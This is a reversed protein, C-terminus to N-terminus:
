RPDAFRWSATFDRPPAVGLLRARLMEIPMRGGQLISDHFERDTMRGSTVLEEHLARIQMGGLMYAAQYLPPYSGNFSRRVEATANAREHGVREVLFDIAEDPTMNGLHFSLSFIIRAARHMRWFLMGIREEPTQPFGLDWLLMEWYLAWGEVWFPTNFVNRHSNYRSTMFGQLHHGPILEHHVTARSFYPNNGRMSMLKEDHAMEDTPYSVRIVEGGLFFPSVRQREPSMMEMRWIEAALPPVTVLDRQEVFDIAEHALDRVVETQKGPEVALNKVHELAAKWDEGYGLERSAALMQQDLWAFEREAIAILEEPTYPIMEHKLDSQLGDAGIPDGIIPEDEGPEIGVVRSRLFGIYEEIAEDLNEYPIRNWWTFMPDYGAYYGFWQEMGRRATELAAAARFAVIRSPPEAGNLRAQITDRTANIRAPLGALLAATAQPDPIEMRRRAEQLETLTTIFPILPAMEGFMEQERELTELRYRLENQLLVHDIKGELSLGDFDIGALGRSWGEYFERFRARQDSSYQVDWRRGLAARDTAYRRVVSALESEARTRLGVLDPIPRRYDIGNARTQSSQAGLPLTLAAALIPILTLRATKM